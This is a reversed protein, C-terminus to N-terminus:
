GAEFDVNELISPGKTRIPAIIPPDEIPTRAFKTGTYVGNALFAQLDPRMKVAKRIGVM